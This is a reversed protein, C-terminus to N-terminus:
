HCTYEVLRERRGKVGVLERGAIDARRVSVSDAKRESSWVFCDRMSWVWALSRSCVARRDSSRRRRASKWRLDSSRFARRWRM